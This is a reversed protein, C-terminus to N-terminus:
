HAKQGAIESPSKVKHAKNKGRRNAFWQQMDEAVSFLCPVVVLTLLTSLLLGGIVAVGMPSRAEGGVGHGIAIPIMGGGAAFTTMLIPRLRLPGATMLADHVSKGANMNQITSDILLIGNKTVLGMLLIIGIMTYISMVQGTLLLSGFAGTLSLPISAMIVLPALYSEYQACLIMYVLLIALTLAKLIAKVADVMMETQGARNISVEKPMNKAVYEDITSAAKGLDKGTFNSVFTIQRQRNFREITSPSNMLKIEAISTLSIQEGRANKLTIGSLDTPGVRDIDAIRLRVDVTKGNSVIDSIKDGEYLARLAAGTQATTIGLDAARAQDIVIRYEATDKPRTTNVDTTGPILKPIDTKMKETFAVLQPWNDSQFIYQIPESRNGGGGAQETLSVEAGNVAFQPALEKRMRAILDAQSFSREHKDIMQVYIRATNPKKDAGAALATIVQRVGPFKQIADIMVFAKESTGDISTGEPLTYNVTFEGRDEKPFFAVPVFRLLVFSSLFILLAGVLVKARNALSWDLVSKYFNDLRTLQHDIAHSWKKLIKNNPEYEGPKLLRASLMPAITFAVFLSIGVAIAVTLGFQYFFRGVIGEMFAVPVFVAMLTLTTAFVALGIESTADKAAEAGSKGMALHRHINEIVIIADDILIGIALSLGLTS